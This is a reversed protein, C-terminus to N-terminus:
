VLRQLAPFQQLLGKGVIHKAKKSRKPPRRASAVLKGASEYSVTRRKTGRSKNGNVAQIIAEPAKAFIDQTTERVRRTASDKLNNGAIADQAINAVTEVAQNGLYKLGSKMSPLLFRAFSALGDMFGLGHRDSYNYYQGLGYGRQYLVGRYVGGVSQADDKNFGSGCVQKFHEYYPNM